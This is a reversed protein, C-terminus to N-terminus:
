SILHINMYVTVRYQKVRLKQKGYCKKKKKEIEPKPSLRHLCDCARAKNMEIDRPRSPFM